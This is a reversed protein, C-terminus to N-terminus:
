YENQFKLQIYHYKTLLKHLQKLIQWLFSITNLVNKTLSLSIISPLSLVCVHSPDAAQAM